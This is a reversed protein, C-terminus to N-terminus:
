SRASRARSELYTRDGEQLTLRAKEALKALGRGRSGGPRHRGEHGRGPPSSPSAEPTLAGAPSIAAPPGATGGKVEGGARPAQPNPRTEVEGGADGHPRRPQANSNITMNTSRISILPWIWSLALVRGGPRAHGLDCRFGLADMAAAGAPGASERGGRRGRIMEASWRASPCTAPDKRPRGVAPWRESERSIRADVAKRPGEPGGPARLGFGTRRPRIEGRHRARRRPPRLSAGPPGTPSSTRHPRRPQVTKSPLHPWAAPAIRTPRPTDTTQAPGGALDEVRDGPAPSAVPRSWRRSGPGRHMAPIGMRRVRFALRSASAFAVFGSRTARVACAPRASEAAFARRRSEGSSRGRNARRDARLHGSIALHDLAQASVADVKAPRKPKPSVSSPRENAASPGSLAARDIVTTFDTGAVGAPRGPKTRLHRDPREAGLRDRCTRLSRPRGAQSGPRPDRRQGGRRLHRAQRRDSPWAPGESRPPLNRVPDGGPGEDPRAPSFTVDVTTPQEHYGFREVTTVM